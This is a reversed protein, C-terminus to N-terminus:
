RYEPKGQALKDREIIMQQMIVIAESLPLEKEKTKEICNLTIDQVTTQGNVNRKVLLYRKEDIGGANEKTLTYVFGENNNIHEGNFFKQM